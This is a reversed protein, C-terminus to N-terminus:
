SLRPQRARPATLWVSWDCDLSRSLRLPLQRLGAVLDDDRALASVLQAGAIMSLLVTKTAAVSREAGAGISLVLESAKAAPFDATM